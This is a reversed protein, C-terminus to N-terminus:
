GATRKAEPFKVFRVQVHKAPRAYDTIPCIEGDRSLEEIHQWFSAEDRHVGFVFYGRHVTDLAFWIALDVGSTSEYFCNGKPLGSEWTAVVETKGEADQGVEKAVTAALQRDVEDIAADEAAQSWNPFDPRVAKALLYRPTPGDSVRYLRFIDLPSGM